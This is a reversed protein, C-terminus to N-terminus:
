NNSRLGQSSPQRHVQPRFSMSLIRVVDPVHSSTVPPVPTSNLPMTSASASLPATDFPFSDISVSPKSSAATLTSVPDFAPSPVSPPSSDPTSAPAPDPKPSSAAVFTDFPNPALETIQPSSILQLHHLLTADRRQQALFRSELLEYQRDVQQQQIKLADLMCQLIDTPVSPSTSTSAIISSPYSGSISSSSSTFAHSSASASFPPSADLSSQTVPLTAADTVQPNPNESLRSTSMARTIRRGM